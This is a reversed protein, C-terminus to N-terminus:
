PAKLDLLAETLLSFRGAVNPAVVYSEGRGRARVQGLRDASWVGGRRVAGALAGRIFGFGDDDFGDDDNHSAAAGAILM